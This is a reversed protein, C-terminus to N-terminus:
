QVHFPSCYSAVVFGGRQYPIRAGFDLFFARFIQLLDPLVLLPALPFPFSPFANGPKGPECVGTQSRQNAFRPKAAGGSVPTEAHLREWVPTQSGPCLAPPFPYPLSRM